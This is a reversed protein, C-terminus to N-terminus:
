RWLNIKRSGRKVVIFPASDGKVLVIDKVKLVCTNNSNRRQHSHREQLALM